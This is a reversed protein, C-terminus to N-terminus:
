RRASETKAPVQKPLEGRRELFPLSHAIELILREFRYGSGIVKQNIEDIAKRDYRELGRGLAYTLMKETLSRFLM